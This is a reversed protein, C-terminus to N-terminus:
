SLGKFYPSADAEIMDSAARLDGDAVKRAIRTLQTIPRTIKGGFYFAVIGILLLVVLGSGAIDELLGRFVHEIREYPRNYDEYFGTVGIVWNWNPFRTYFLVRKRMQGDSPDRWVGSWEGIEGADLSDAQLDIKEFIRRQDQNQVDKVKREDGKNHMNLISRQGDEGYILWAFGKAGVEIRAIAMRVADMWEENLGVFVAAVVHGQKDVLPVFGGLYTSGAIRISSQRSEGQTLAQGLENELGSPLSESIVDFIRGNKSITDVNSAVGYFNGNQIDRQYFFVDSQTWEAVEEVWEDIGGGDYMDKKDFVLDPLNVVLEDMRWKMSQSSAHMPGMIGYMKAVVHMGEDLRAHVFHSDTDVLASIDMVIQRMQRGLMMDIVRELDDSLQEERWYLFYVLIIVPLLASFIALGTVKHRLKVNM